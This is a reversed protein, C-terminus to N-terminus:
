GFALQVADAGAIEDIHAFELKSPFPRVAFASPRPPARGAFAEGLADSLRCRYELKASPLAIQGREGKPWIFWRRHLRKVYDRRGARRALSDESPRRRTSSCTLIAQNFKAPAETALDNRWRHILSM